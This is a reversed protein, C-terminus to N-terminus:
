KVEFHVAYDTGANDSVSFDCSGTKGMFGEKALAQSMAKLDDHSPRPGPKAIPGTGWVSNQESLKKGLGIQGDDHRRTLLTFGEFEVSGVEGVRLEHFGAIPLNESNYHSVENLSRSDLSFSFGSLIAMIASGLCVFPAAEPQLLSSECAVLM